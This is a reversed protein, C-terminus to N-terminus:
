KNNSAQVGILEKQQQLPYASWLLLYDATVRLLTLLIELNAWGTSNNKHHLTHTKTKSEKRWLCIPM